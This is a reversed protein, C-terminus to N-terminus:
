RKEGEYRNPNIKFNKKIFNINIWLLRPNKMNEYQFQSYRWESSQSRQVCWLVRDRTHTHVVVSHNNPFNNLYPQDQHAWSFEEVEWKSGRRSSCCLIGTWLVWKFVMILCCSIACQRLMMMRESKIIELKYVMQSNINVDDKSCCGNGSGSRSCAAMTREM